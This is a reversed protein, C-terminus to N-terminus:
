SRRLPAHPHNGPVFRQINILGDFQLPQAPNGAGGRAGGPGASFAAAASSKPRLHPLHTTAGGHPVDQAHAPSASPALHYPSGGSAGHGSLSGPFLSRSSPRASSSFTRTTVMIPAGPAVNGGGARPTGSGGGARNFSAAVLGSLSGDSANNALDFGGGLASGSLLAAASAPSSPNMAATVGDTWRRERGALLQLRGPTLSGDGGGGGSADSLSSSAASIGSLVTQLTSVGGGAAAAGPGSQLHTHAFPPAALTPPVPVLGGLPAFRTRASTPPGEAVTARRNVVLRGQTLASSTALGPLEPPLGVAADSPPPLLPGASAAAAAASLVGIPRVYGPVESPGGSGSLRGSGGSGSLRGSGGPAAAARAGQQQQQADAATSAGTAADKAEDESEYGSTEKYHKRLETVATPKQRPPRQPSAM